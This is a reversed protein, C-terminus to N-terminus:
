RREAFDQLAEDADLDHHGEYFADDRANYLWTSYSDSGKALVFFLHADKPNLSAPRQGIISRGVNVRGIVNTVRSIIPYHTGRKLNFTDIPTRIEIHRSSETEENVSEVLTVRYGTFDDGDDELLILHDGPKIDSLNMSAYNVGERKLYEHMQPTM